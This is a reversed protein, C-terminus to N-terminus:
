RKAIVVIIEKGPILLRHHSEIEIDKVRLAEGIALARIDMKFNSPIHKPLCRVKVHRILHRVFGGLKVGVCEAVGSFIIPVRVDIPSTANLVQFDLHLVQYTTPHYQIGKVVSPYIEDGREVDFITTPLHGKELNRIVRDFTAGDVTVSEGRNGSHYMIGPIDGGRRIKMLESKKKGTRVSASIKM